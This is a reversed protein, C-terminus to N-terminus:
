ESGSSSASSSGDSSGELYELNGVSAVTFLKGLGARDHPSWRHVENPPGNCVMVAERVMRLLKEGQFSQPGELNQPPTGRKQGGGGGFPAIRAEKGAAGGPVADREGPTQDVDGTRYGELSAALLEEGLAEDQERSLAKRYWPHRIVKEVTLRDASSVALMGNLLDKCEESLQADGWVQAMMATSNGSHLLYIQELMSRYHTEFEAKGRVGQSFPFKGLLLVYLFVGCSWVDAARPDYGVDAMMQELVEPPMYAPTGCTTHTSAEEWRQWQKSLGFDCVKLLPPGRERSALLVNALKIDRHAVRKSHCYSIALVLQRFFFRTDGEGMVLGPPAGGGGARKQAVIHSFFDGGEAYQMFIAVHSPTLMVEHLGVIFDHQLRAQTLIERHLFEADLLPGRRLM